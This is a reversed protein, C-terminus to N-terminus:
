SIMDQRTKRGGRKQKWIKCEAFVCNLPERRSQGQSTHERGTNTYDLLFHRM